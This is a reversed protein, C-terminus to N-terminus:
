TLTRTCISEPYDAVAIKTEKEFVLQKCNDLVILVKNELNEPAKDGPSLIFARKVKRWDRQFAVKFYDGESLEEAKKETFQKDKPIMFFEDHGCNKCVLVSFDPDNKEPITVKEADTTILGCKCCKSKSEIKTM